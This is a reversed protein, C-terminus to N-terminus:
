LFSKKEFEWLAAWAEWRNLKGNESSLQVGRKTRSLKSWAYYPHFSLDGGPSIRTSSRNKRQVTMSRPGSGKGL